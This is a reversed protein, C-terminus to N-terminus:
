DLLNAAPNNLLEGERYYSGAIAETLHGSLQMADRLHAGQRGSETIFGSRLSHAGYDNPDLSIRAIRQKVIRNITRGCIGDNLHNNAKIGRFVAGARLGSKVIWNRLAQASEGLVPVDLGEGTQDNKSARILIIYGQKIRRLDEIQLSALEARRRGGAAFGVLLLARDRVGRLSDDCTVVLQRLLDATIAKKQTPRNQKKARQLRRLLVHVRSDNLMHPVGAQAHAVSLSALYRRLTTLKLPGSQRRYGQQILQTAQGPDMQGTHELIFRIITELAVPYRPKLHCCLHAWAWFYRVDRQYARQTSSSLGAELAQTYADLWAPPTTKKSTM